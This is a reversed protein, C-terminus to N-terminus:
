MVSKKRRGIVVALAALGSVVSLVLFLDASSGAKPPKHSGTAPISAHEVKGCRTCTRTKEGKETETPEKTVKWEGFDHGLADTTKNERSLEEGCESCYVVEDYSGKTDCDPAIENERVPEGPTHEQAPEGYFEALLEGLRDIDYLGSYDTTGDELVDTLDYDVPAGLDADAGSSVTMKGNSSVFYFHGDALYHKVLPCGGGGSREGLIAIGCDKAMVPLFNGSSFSFKSTLIAFNFDYEVEKDADNFEGDLNLDVLGQSVVTNGTTTKLTLYQALNCHNEKNTMATIMFTALAVLGGGNASVDVVFNKIGNEKAWDLSLIFPEAVDSIFSDFVFVATDGSVVLFAAGDWSKVTEYGSYAAERAAVLGPRTFERASANIIMNRVYASALNEPDKLAAMINVALATEPYYAIEGLADAYMSTHGGDFFADTLCCLGLMYEVVDTSQLLEKALRTEDSFEELTKDFGKEAVSVGAKANAPMGYFHDMAFCFENYTFEAMAESRETVNFLPSKDFYGDRTTDDMAHLFYINGDIYEADNYTMSYIDALTPLPMYAKGGIETLDIHYPSLDLTLDHIEGVYESPLAKIFNIVVTSNERNTEANPYEDFNEFYLTDKGTDIVMADEGSTVTFTGDENKIQSFDSTFIVEFFDCPDLYPVEPLDDYFVCRISKTEELSYLYATVDRETYSPEDAMVFLSGLTGFLLTAAMLLSFVSVSTKKM